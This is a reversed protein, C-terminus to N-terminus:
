RARPAGWPDDYVWYSVIEPDFHRGTPQSRIAAMLCKDPMPDGPPTRFAVFGFRAMLGAAEDLSLAAGGVQEPPGPGIGNVPVTPSSM